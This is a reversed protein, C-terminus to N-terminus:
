KQVNELVSHLRAWGETYVCRLKECECSCFGYKCLEAKHAFKHHKVLFSDIHHMTDIIELGAYIDMQFFARIIFQDHSTCPCRHPYLICWGVPVDM